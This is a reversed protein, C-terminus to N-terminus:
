LKWSNGHFRTPKPPFPLSSLKTVLRLYDLIPLVPPGPQRIPGATALRRFAAKEEETLRAM